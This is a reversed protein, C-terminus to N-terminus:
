GQTLASSSLVGEILRPLCGLTALTQLSCQERDQRVHYWRSRSSGGKREQDQGVRWGQDPYEDGRKSEEHFGCRQRYKPQCCCDHRRQLRDQWAFKERLRSECISGIWSVCVCSGIFSENADGRHPDFCSSWVKTVDDSHLRCSGFEGRYQCFVYRLSDARM